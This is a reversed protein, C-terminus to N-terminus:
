FVLSLAENVTSLGIIEGDFGTKGAKEVDGKPVYLRKFGSYRFEQVRKEIQSVPRLEGSLSIEGIFGAGDEVSKEKLSSAIAMAVALDAATENINFGGSINLFIDFNNLKLDGHKELVASIIILRNMDLGDSMRRPNSFSSFTVLSQVEFLITRSGEVAASVASGPSHTRFPNLFIKNKDKVEELGTSTMRFLGMENVSGYRNKFARLIRYDRSFDGEFYLVVDVIHELLKPGAINGDKTIHGILIVPIGSRKAFEALRSSSERVQSVSGMIGPAECNYITQISDVILLGPKIKEALELIDGVENNVSIKVRSSDLGLREARQRIQVPSEEGSIYLAELYAAIQLGLTSKGIGPEGGLLLVSGPVIGGGCVLNFEGIDVTKRDLSQKEVSSLPIAVPKGKVGTSKMPAKDVITNWEGCSTCRGNWKSFDQGCATCIFFDKKKSM